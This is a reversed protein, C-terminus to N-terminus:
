YFFPSHETVVGIFLANDGLKFIRLLDMLKLQQTISIDVCGENVEPIRTKNILLSIGFNGVRGRKVDICYGVISTPSMDPRSLSYIDVFSSEFKIREMNFTSDALQATQFIMYRQRDARLDQAFTREPVSTPLTISGARVYTSHKM